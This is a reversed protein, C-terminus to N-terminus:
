LQKYFKESNNNFWSENERFYEIRLNFQSKLFEQQRNCQSYRVFVGFQISTKYLRAHCMGGGKGQRKEELASTCQAKIQLAKSRRKMLSVNSCWSIRSSDKLCAHFNELILKLEINVKLRCLDIRPYVYGLYNQYDYM